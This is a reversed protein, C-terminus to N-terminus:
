LTFIGLNAGMAVALSEALTILGGNVFSVTMVMTTSSSLVLATILVGSLMATFRNHKIATHINRLNEVAIKQLGESMLKLGYLFLGISGILYFPQIWDM